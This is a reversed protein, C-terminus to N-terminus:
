RLPLSRHLLLKALAVAELGHLPDVRTAHALDPLGVVGQEAPPDRDLDQGLLQGAVRHRQPAEAAFGPGCGHQVM